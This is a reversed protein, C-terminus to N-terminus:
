ISKLAEAACSLTKEIVQDSHATSVFSAEFPSPALYIGQDLMMRYYKVFIDKSSATASTFDKVPRDTFFMSGMSGAYNVRVTCENASEFASKIPEMAPRIGAGCLITLEQNGESPRQDSGRECGTAALVLAVGILSLSAEHRM